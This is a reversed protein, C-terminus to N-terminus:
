DGVTAFMRGAVRRAQETTMEDAALYRQTTEIDSHGLWLRAQEINYNKAVATGFTRRIAHLSIKGKFEARRAARQVMKILHMNVKGTQTPFILDSDQAQMRKKREAMIKVFKLDLVIDQERSEGDKPTWGREDCGFLNAFEPKPHVNISGQRLDIDSWKAFATEEDRFGTNLLFHILDKEDRNAKSLFLNIIELSYKWPRRRVPAKIDKMPLPIKLGFRNFFTSLYRVRNRLAHQPDGGERRKLNARMWALYNMIDKRDVEDITDQPCHAVFDDVARTYMAITSKKKGLTELESKYEAALRRLDRTPSKAPKPEPPNLPLLGARIRSFDQELRLFQLAAAVPDKGLPPTKRKGGETYRAYFGTIDDLGFFQPNARGKEPDPKWEVPLVISKRHITAPVYPFAGTGDNVRALLAVKAQM